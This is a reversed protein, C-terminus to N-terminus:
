TIEFSGEFEAALATRRVHMRWCDSDDASELVDHNVGAIVLYQGPKPPSVDAKRVLAVFDGPQFKEASEEPYVFDEQWRFALVPLDTAAGLVYSDSSPNYVRSQYMTGTTLADAPLEDAEVTIFGAASLFASRVRHLRGALTIFQGVAVTEATTLFIHFFPELSSSIAEEKFDKLWLKSGYTSVGGSSLVQGPTQILTVGDSRHLVHKDRIVDGMFSDPQHM